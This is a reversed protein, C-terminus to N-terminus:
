MVRMSEEREREIERKHEELREKERILKERERYLEERQRENSAIEGYRYGVTEMDDKIMAGIREGPKSGDEELWRCVVYFLRQM